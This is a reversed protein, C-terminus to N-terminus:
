GQYRYVNTGRQVFGVKQYLRNAAEREPRSTLDISTAGLKNQAIQIAELLLLKGAGQGRCKNDVVVDEIHARRGTVADFCALTLMGVIEDNENIAILFVTLPSALVSRLRDKTLSPASQSLQPLLSSIGRFVQDDLPANSNSPLQIIKLPM